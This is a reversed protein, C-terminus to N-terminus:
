KKLEKILQDAMIVAKDINKQTAQDNSIARNKVLSEIYRHREPSLVLATLIKM